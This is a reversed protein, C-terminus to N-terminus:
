SNEEPLKLQPEEDDKRRGTIWKWATAGVGAIAMIIVKGFKAIIAFFGAKALVKGAVLGGVTFAAVKDVSPNFDSYKNGEAFTVIDTVKAISANVEKLEDMTSIANIVLVGKRGLVRVNYNLTNVDADGFKIEKAWHLIHKEKDYYPKSAWGVLEVRDYGSKEREENGESIETKMEALLDDYDVDDADDDEVFGMPDYQINFAYSGDTMPGANAPFLMGLSSNSRPNGWLDELVYNSQTADLYRYGEPVKLDALEEGETTKLHIIGTQYKMTANISDKMATLSQLSDVQAFSCFCALFLLCTLLLLRNM